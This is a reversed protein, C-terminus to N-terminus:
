CCVVLLPWEAWVSRVKVGPLSCKYLGKINIAYKLVFIDQFLVYVQKLTIYENIILENMKFKKKFLCKQGDPLSPMKSNTETFEICVPM